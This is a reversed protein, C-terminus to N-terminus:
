IKLRHLIQDVIFIYLKVKSLAKEKGRKLKNYIVEFGIGNQKSLM